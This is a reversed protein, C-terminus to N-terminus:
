KIIPNQSKMKFIFNMLYYFKLMYLSYLWTFLDMLGIGSLHCDKGEIQKAVVNLLTAIQPKTINPADKSCIQLLIERINTCM